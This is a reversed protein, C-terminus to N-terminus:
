ELMEESEAMWEFLRMDRIGKIHLGHSQRLLANAKSKSLIELESEWNKMSMADIRVIFRGIDRHEAEAVKLVIEVM